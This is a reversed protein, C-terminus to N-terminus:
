DYYNIQKGSVYRILSDAQTMVTNAMRVSWKQQEAKKNQSRGSNCGAILILAVSVIVIWAIRRFTAM